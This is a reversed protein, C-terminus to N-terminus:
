RWDKLCRPIVLFNRFIFSGLCVNRSTQYRLPMLLIWYCVIQRRMPMCRNWNGPYWRWGESDCRGPLVSFHILNCCCRQIPPDSDLLTLGLLLCFFLFYCFFWSLFYCFFLMFVKSVSKMFCVSLYWMRMPNMLMWYRGFHLLPTFKKSRACRM